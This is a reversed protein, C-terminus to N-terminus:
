IVQVLEFAIDVLALEVKDDSTAGVEVTELNRRRKKRKLRFSFAHDEKFM